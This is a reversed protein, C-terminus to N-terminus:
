KGMYTTLVSGSYYHALIQEYGYGSVAMADAGYQSLGVRHGFGKTTISVTDGVVTIVFATSRLNLLKRLEVGTYTRNCINVTEVGGGQTYTIDQIWKEPHGTPDFGLTREFENLSLTVTDSYHDASEEGPSPTAQLYPIDAGWVARADETMGGSCSFYTAEILEGAYTLVQGSTETVANRVKEICEESGGNRLYSEPSCYAQCCSSDTCVAANGHKFRKEYRRLTYTRSAVAQAKLAESEFEAPMEQLLVGMIYDELDMYVVTEEKVLVPILLETETNVHPLSVSEVEESGNAAKTPFLSSFMITPLIVGFIIAIIFEKGKTFVYDGRVIRGIDSHMEQRLNNTNDEYKLNAQKKVYGNM